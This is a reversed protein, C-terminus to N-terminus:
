RVMKSQWQGYSEEGLHKLAGSLFVVAVLQGRLRQSVMAEPVTWRRSNVRSHPKLIGPDLM